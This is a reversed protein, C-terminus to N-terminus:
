HRLDQYKQAMERYFQFNDNVRHNQPLFLNKEIFVEDNGFSVQAESRAVDYSKSLSGKSYVVRMGRGGGGATAKIIVPFGINDSIKYAEQISSVGKTSGEVVPVKAERAAIRSQIKDGMIKIHEAKPGIFVINSNNCKDVFDARESLFGYGPHIAEAGSIETAAISSIQISFACKTSYLLLIKLIRM